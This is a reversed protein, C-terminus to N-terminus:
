PRGPVLRGLQLGPDTAPTSLARLHFTAFGVVIVAGFQHALALGLPVVHILTLIGVCAQLLVLGFLIRARGTAAPGATLAHVLAVAFLVYAGARHIFQAMPPNEFLNRWWPELPLLTSSLPVWRGDMLPWTNFSRGADLGALVAGAFIQVFAAILVVTAGIRAARSGGENVPRLGSATWILAAYLVFAFTLHVALRYPAVSVRDVLGSVVMWWGIAGQLAGLGLLVLLKGGLARDIRGRLWFYALPIAFAFGIVRGLFRHAWEWFFIFKFDELSMGQNLMRYQPIEKYKQFEIAWDSASLPPVIGTIPKWETISLGSETLRTAGGVVVMLAVLAAVAWLWIRIARREDAAFTPSPQL